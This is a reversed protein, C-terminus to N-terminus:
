PGAVLFAQKASGEAVCMASAQISERQEHRQSIMSERLTERGISESRAGTM